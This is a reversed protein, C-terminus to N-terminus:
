SRNGGSTALARVILTREAAARSHKLSSPPGEPPLTAPVPQHERIQQPLHEVLLEPGASVLVAEQIANELQRINGPGSYAELADLALPSIDFLDKKFRTNFRAAMSRVLPAIDQVRERLPPLHFSMVNLRYYLDQRFKGQRVAEELDWNS